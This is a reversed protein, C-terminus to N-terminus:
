EAPKDRGRIGDTTLIHFSTNAKDYGDESLYGNQGWM